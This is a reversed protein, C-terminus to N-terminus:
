NRKGKEFIISLWNNEQLVSKFILGCDKAKELIIEKDQPLIGSIILTGKYRLSDCYALMDNLLINRNINALIIHFQQDKIANVDGKEIVLNSCLNVEANEISNRVAWDDIDISLVKECGLKSALIGLVGTGCGMDLVETSSVDSLGSFTYELYNM